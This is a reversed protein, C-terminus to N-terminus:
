IMQLFILSCFLHNSCLEQELSEREERSFPEDQELMYRKVVDFSCVSAYALTVVEDNTTHEKAYPKDAFKSFNFELM